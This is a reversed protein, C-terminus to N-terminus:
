LDEDFSESCLNSSVDNSAEGEKSFSSMGSDLYKTDKKTTVSQRVLHMPTNFSYNPMLMARPLVLNTRLRRGMLLESPSPLNPKPESNYELVELFLKSKSSLSKTILSKSIQCYKVNTIDSGYDPNTTHKIDFDKFFQKVESTNFPPTNETVIELPLGHTSFVEEMAGILCKGTKINICKITLFKSFHDVIIVYYKREMELIKIGLKSWPLEAIDCLDQESDTEASHGKTKCVLCNSIYTDIDKFMSPWYYIFKAKQQCFKVSQHAAHIQSLVKDIENQPVVLRNNYFLLEGICRLDDKINFYKRADSKIWSLYKPWGDKVYSIVIQLTADDKLSKKFDLMREESAYLLMSHPPEIVSQSVYKCSTQSIPSRSLAYPIVLDKGAVYELKFGFRLLRILIKQTTLSLTHLPEKIITLLPRHDSQIVLEKGYTYFYFKELTHLMALLKKEAQQYKQQSTNLTISHYGLPYSDQLVVSGIGYSSAAVSFYVAKNPNFAKLFTAECLIKKVNSFALDQEKNWFFKQESQNIVKELPETHIAANPIRHSIFEIMSLFRQLEQKNSPRKLESIAEVKITDPTIDNKCLKYGLFSVEQKNLQLKTKSFKLNYRRARELVQLLRSNHDNKTKAYVLIDDVYCVVGEIDDFMQTAIFHFVKSAGVLGPPITKFKYKGYPTAIMCINASAEDLPIQVFAQPATLITYFQSGKTDLLVDEISPLPFYEAVVYKNLVRCDMYLKQFDNSKLLMLFPHSWKSETDEVAELYGNLIMSKLEGELNDLEFNTLKRHSAHFPKVNPLMSIHYPECRLVGPPSFVDNYLKIIKDASNVDIPTSVTAVIGLDICAQLGLVSDLNLKTVFFKLTEQKSNKFCKIDTFGLVNVTHGSYSSLVIDTPQLKAKTLKVKKFTEYSILNVDSGTDIRFVVPNGNLEITEFWTIASSRKTNDKIAFTVMSESSLSM